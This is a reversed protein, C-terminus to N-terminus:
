KDFEKRPNNREFNRANSIELLMRANTRDNTGWIITRFIPKYWTEKLANQLVLFLNQNEQDNLALQEGNFYEYKNVPPTIKKDELIKKANALLEAAYKRNAGLEILMAKKTRFIVDLAYEFPIYYCGNDGWKKGWTNEVIFYDKYERGDSWIITKEASTNYWVINIFHWGWTGPTAIYNNKRTAAWSIKNTGTAITMGFYLAKKIEEITNVQNYIEIWTLKRAWKPWYEIYTGRKDIDPDLHTRIYWALTNPNKDWKFGLTVRSENVWETTWFAVCLLTAWQNLVVNNDMKVYEPLKVSINGALENFQIDREDAINTDMCTDLTDMKEYFNKM